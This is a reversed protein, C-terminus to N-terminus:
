LPTSLCNWPETSRRVFLYYNGRVRRRLLSSGGRGEKDMISVEKLPSKYGIMTAALTFPWWLHARPNLKFSPIYHFSLLYAFFECLCAHLEVNLHLYIDISSVPHLVWSSLISVEHTIAGQFFFLLKSQGLRLIPFNLQTSVWVIEPTQSECRRIIM